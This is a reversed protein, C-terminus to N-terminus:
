WNSFAETFCFPNEAPISTRRREFTKIVAQHLDRYSFEFKSALTYLDAFDKMRSNQEGHSVMAHLKEAIVTVKPYTRLIPNEGNLLVPFSVKEPEPTVADGIGIDIQLPIRANGLFANLTICAGGYENDIRIPSVLVSEPDYIMGDSDVSGVVCIASFIKKLIAEDSEGFCLLDADM